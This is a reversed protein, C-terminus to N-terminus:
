GAVKAVRRRAMGHECFSDEQSDSIGPHMWRGVDIECFSGGIRPTGESICL